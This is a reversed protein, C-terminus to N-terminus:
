IFLQVSNQIWWHNHGVCRHVPLTGTDIQILSYTEGTRRELSWYAVLFLQFAVFPFCIPTYRTIGKQKAYAQEWTSTHEILDFETVMECQVLSKVLLTKLSVVKYSCYKQDIVGHIFWITKLAWVCRLANVKAAKLKLVVCGAPTAERIYIKFSALYGRLFSQQNSLFRCSTSPASSFSIM